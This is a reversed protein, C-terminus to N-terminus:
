REWCEVRNRKKRIGGQAGKRNKRNNKGGHDEKRYTKIIKKLKYLTM